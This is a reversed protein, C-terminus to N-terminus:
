RATDGTVAQLLGSLFGYVMVLVYAVFAADPAFLPFAWMALFPLAAMWAPRVWWSLLVSFVVGAVLDNLPLQM